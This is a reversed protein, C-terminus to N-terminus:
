INKKNIFSYLKIFGKEDSCILCEGIDSITIKKIGKPSNDVKITKIMKYETMDFILIGNDSALLTYKNNWPIM